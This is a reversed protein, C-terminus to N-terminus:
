RGKRKQKKNGKKKISNSKQAQLNNFSGYKESFVLELDITRQNIDTKLIKVTVKDGLQFKRKNKRGYICYNKEDYAYFDDHLSRISVLGEARIDLLQVYFGWSTVGTITGEVIQGVYDSAYEVLKYRISAREADSAKKEQASCHKCMKKLQEEDYLIKKPNELYQELIRHVLLDPYRRIPSTFHTYFDFALAYHGINEAQYVAKAMSRIAINAVLDGLATGEIKQNIQQLTKRFSKESSIDLQYDFKELFNKLDILKDQQPQDHVRFVMPIKKNKAIFRCVRQNALLMFDEILKHADKRIKPKIQIPKYNEDLQFRIEETEFNISGNKLRKNRLAYALKNLTTLFSAWEGVPNELIAQAEEYTFRKNSHIITKGFWEQIIKGSEDMEFVASFALKDENPRLSCLFNSIKEPLMPLTRDVLYVSTAKQYAELDLKTGKQVYFSVDAIHVGVEYNGNELPRLSLADDFDKADEPDITITPVTRFDKRKLFEDPPITEPLANAEQIADESFGEMLGFEHIIAHIETHHAGPDGLIKVIEIDIKGYDNMFLRALAKKGIENKKIKSTVEFEWPIKKDDPILFVRNYEKILRGVFSRKEGELWEVLQGFSYRFKKEIIKVTIKDGPLLLFHCSKPIFVREAISEVWVEYFDEHDIKEVKGEFTKGEINLTFKSTTEQILEGDDTLEKLAQYIQTPNFQNKLTTQAYVQKANYTEGPNALFFKLLENKLNKM